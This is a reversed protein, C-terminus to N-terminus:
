SETIDEKSYNDVNGDYDLTLSYKVQGVTLSVIYGSDEDRGLPIDEKEITDDSVSSSDAGENLKYFKTTAGEESYVDAFFLFQNLPEKYGEDFRQIASEFAEESNLYASALHPFFEKPKAAYFIFCDNCDELCCESEILSPELCLKKVEESEESEEITETLLNCESVEMNELKSDLYFCYTGGSDQFISNEGCQDYEVSSYNRLYNSRHLGAATILAYLRESKVQEDSNEISHYAIDRNLESFVKKINLDSSLNIKALSLDADEEFLKSVEDGRATIILPKDYLSGSVSELVDYIKNKLLDEDYDKKALVFLADLENYIKAIRKGSNDSLGLALAIQSKYDEFEKPYINIFIAYVLERIASARSSDDDSSLTIPQAPDKLFAISQIIEKFNEFIYAREEDSLVEEDEGDWKFKDQAKLAAHLYSNLSLLDNWRDEFGEESFYDNISEQNDILAKKISKVEKINIRINDEDFVSAVFDVSAENKGDITIKKSGSTYESKTPIVTYSKKDSFDSKTYSGNEDTEVSAFTANNEDLFTITAGELEKGQEDKVTGSISYKTEVAEVHLNINYNDIAGTESDQESSDEKSKVTDSSDSVISEADEQSDSESSSDTVEAVETVETAEAVETVEGVEAISTLPASEGETSATSEKESNSLEEAPKLNVIVTDSIEKSLGMSNKAKIKISYIGSSLKGSYTYNSTTSSFESAVWSPSVWYGEVAGGGEGPAWSWSLQGESVTKGDYKQRFEPAEPPQVVLCIVTLASGGSNDANDRATVTIINEASSLSINPISWISGSLSATGSGGKNNSWSIEKVGGGEEDSVIGSLNLRSNTTTFSFELTPSTITLLPATADLNISVRSPESVNGAGDKFWAYITKLGDGASLLYVVAENYFTVADGSIWGEARSSPAAEEESLYYGTVGTEDQALLNLTVDSSNVWSKNDSISVSGSPAEKDESVDLEFVDNKALFKEVSSDNSIEFVNKDNYVAKKVGFDDGFGDYESVKWKNLKEWNKNRERRVEFDWYYAKFLGRKHASETKLSIIERGSLYKASEEPIALSIKYEQSDVTILVDWQRYSNNDLNGGCNWGEKDSIIEGRSIEIVGEKADLNDQSVVESKWLGEIGNNEYTIRPFISIDSTKIGIKDKALNHSVGIRLSSKANSLQNLAQWGDACAYDTFVAKASFINAEIAYSDSGAGSFSLTVIIKKLNDRSENAAIFFKYRLATISEPNQGSEFSPRVEVMGNGGAFSFDIGYQTLIFLIIGAGLVYKIDRIGQRM